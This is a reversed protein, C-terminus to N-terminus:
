QSYCANPEIAPTTTLEVNHKCYVGYNYQADFVVSANKEKKCHAKEIIVKAKM